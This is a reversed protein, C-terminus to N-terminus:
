FRFLGAGWTFGGGFVTAAVLSGDKILGKEIAEYMAVPVSAASTNGYRDVNVYLKGNAMEFRKAIGEIIRINAQHPILLDIDENKYGTENLVKELGEIMAFIAHNFVERGEMQICHLNKRVNEVNIRNKSGLPSKLLYWLSGNSKTYTSLIGKKGDSPVVVAAGSADGFLVCTNRDTFDTISTLIETGIVLVKKARGAAILTDALTLGYIFGSCAASIDFATANIAGIKDQVFCATAPFLMDPTVTGLIIHDLDKAKIGAAKLANEAAETSLDSNGVNDEEKVIFRTKIGTRTQIWEDSTDVMKELDANTLIHKGTARGIGAIMSNTKNM